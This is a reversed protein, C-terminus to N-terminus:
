LSDPIFGEKTLAAIVGRLLFRNRMGLVYSRSGDHTPQLLGADLWKRIQYTRQGANLGPMAEALDGSKVEMKAVALKLAKAEDARINQRETAYEIAPILVSRSLYAYDTLKRIKEMEDRVGTLVYTCWEELGEATGTDARSLMYYYKERDACFVAAPNLLRGAGNVKFGYKILMAYTLLRVVRGNGNGFPHVWAFRHHALAVKMLDYKSDHEANILQFLEQMYAPVTTHDPPLHDSQSIAIPRMRYAGPNRDGERELGKVTIEHLQRITYETLPAGHIVADDIFRMAEEINRIENLQDSRDPQSESADLYDALTTHNGEIRASALSELLHFVHKLEYFVPPPTSGSITLRRLHELDLLVNLLPSDFSPNLLELDHHIFTAMALFTSYAITVDLFYKIKEFCILQNRFLRCFFIKFEDAISTSCLGDDADRGGGLM